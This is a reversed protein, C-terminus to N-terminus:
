EKGQKCLNAWGLSLCVPGSSCCSNVICISSSSLCTLNSSCSELISCDIGPVCYDQNTASTYRFCPTNSSACNNNDNGTLNCISLACSSLPDWASHNSFSLRFGKDHDNLNCADSNNAMSQGSVFM